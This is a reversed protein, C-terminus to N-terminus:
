GERRVVDPGRMSGMEHGLGERGERNMVEITSLRECTNPQFHSTGM